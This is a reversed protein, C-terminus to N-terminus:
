SNKITIIEGDGIKQEGTQNVRWSAGEGIALFKYTKAEQNDKWLSEARSSSDQHAHVLTCASVLGWGRRLEMINKDENIYWSSLALAGASMGVLHVGRGLVQKLAPVLNWKDFHNLLLETSGGGLYIISASNIASLAFALGDSEKPAIIKFTSGFVAEITNIYEQSDSAATSFFVLTSNPPTLNKLEDDIAATEGKRIEGGGILYISGKM